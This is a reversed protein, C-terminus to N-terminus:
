FRQARCADVRHRLSVILLHVNFRRRRPIFHFGLAVDQAIEDRRNNAHNNCERDSAAATALGGAFSMEGSSSEGLVFFSRFFFVDRQYPVFALRTLPREHDWLTGCKGLREKAIWRDGCRM